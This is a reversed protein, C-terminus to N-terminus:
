TQEIELFGRWSIPIEDINIWEAQGGYVRDDTGPIKFGDAASPLLAHEINIARPDRFVAGCEDCLLVILEGSASRRVAIECDCFPCDKKHRVVNEKGL